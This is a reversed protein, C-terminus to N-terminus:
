GRIILSSEESYAQAQAMMDLIPRTVNMLHQVAATLTTVQLELARIRAAQSKAEAVLYTDSRAMADGLNDM